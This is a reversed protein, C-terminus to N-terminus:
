KKGRVTIGYFDVFEHTITLGNQTFWERVEEASMPLDGGQQAGMATPASDDGYAGAM